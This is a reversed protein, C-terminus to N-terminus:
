ISTKFTLTSKLIGLLPVIGSLGVINIVRKLAWFLLLNFNMNELVFSYVTSELFYDV